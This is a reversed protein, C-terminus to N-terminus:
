YLCCIWCDAILLKGYGHSCSCKGSAEDCTGHGSCIGNNTVDDFPCNTFIQSDYINYHLDDLYQHGCDGITGSNGYGDSSKFGHYCLCTGTAYDCIGHNSCELYERKGKSSFLNQKILSYMGHSRISIDHDRVGKM